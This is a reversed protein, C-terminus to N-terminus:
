FLVAWNHCCKPNSASWLSFFWAFQLWSVSEHTRETDVWEVRSRSSLFLQTSYNSGSDREYWVQFDKRWGYRVWVNINCTLHLNSLRFFFACTERHGFPRKERCSQTCIITSDLERGRPTATAWQCHLPLQPVFDLAFAHSHVFSM